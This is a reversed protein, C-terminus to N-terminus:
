LLTELLLTLNRESLARAVRAFQLASTHLENWRDLCEIVCERVRKASVEGWPICLHPAFSDMLAKVKPDYSIAIAPIGVMCAAILSHLRVGILLHMGNIAKWLECISAPAIATAEHAGLQECLRESLPKDNSSLSICRVSGIKIPLTLLGQAIHMMVDSAGHWDRMAVAIAVQKSPPKAEFQPEIMFALDATLHVKDMPAGLKAALELSAKDRFTLLECSRMATSALRKSARRRLPGLGQALLIPKCRLSRSLLILSTYYLLSRLSTADQLLSGGCGIAADSKLIRKAIKPMDLKRVSKVSHVRATEEVNGSIVTVDFKIRKKMGSLFAHLMMEDGLNGHGFYGFVLFRFM